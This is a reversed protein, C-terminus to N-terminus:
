KLVEDELERLVADPLNQLFEETPQQEREKSSCHVRFARTNNVLVFQWCGNREDSVETRAEKNTNLIREFNRTIVAKAKLHSDIWELTQPIHVKYGEILATGAHLLREKQWRRTNAAARRPSPRHARMRTAKNRRLQQQAAARLTNEERVWRDITEPMPNFNSIAFQQKAEQLIEQRLMTNSRNTKKRVRYQEAFFVKVQMDYQTRRKKAVPPHPSTDAASLHETTNLM